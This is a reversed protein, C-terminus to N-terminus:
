RWASPIDPHEYHRPGTRCSSQYLRPGIGPKGCIVISVAQRRTFNQHSFRVLGYGGFLHSVNDGKSLFVELVAKGFGVRSPQGFEEVKRAIAYRSRRSLKFSRGTECTTLQEGQKWSYALSRRIDTRMRPMWTVAADRTTSATRNAATVIQKSNCERARRASCRAPAGLRVAAEHRSGAPELRWQEAQSSQLSPKRRGSGRRPPWPNASYSVDGM